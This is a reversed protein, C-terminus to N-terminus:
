VVPAVVKRTKRPRKHKPKEVIPAETTIPSTEDIVSLAEKKSKTKRKRKKPVSKTEEQVLGPNAEKEDEKEAAASAKLEALIRKAEVYVKHGIVQKEDNPDVVEKKPTVFSPAGLNQKAQQMATIWVNQKKIPNGDKDYTVPRKFKFKRMKRTANEDYEANQWVVKDYTQGVRGAKQNGPTDKYPIKVIVREGTGPIRKKMPVGEKVLKKMKHQLFRIKKTNEENTDLKVLKGRLVALTTYKREKENITKKFTKFDCETLFRKKLNGSM